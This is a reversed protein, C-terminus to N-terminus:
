SNLRVEWNRTKGLKFYDVFMTTEMAMQLEDAQLQSATFSVSPLSISIIPRHFGMVPDSLVLEAGEVDAAVSYVNQRTTPESDPVDEILKPGVFSSLADLALKMYEMSFYASFKTNTTRSPLFFPKCVLPAKCQYPDVQINGAEIGNMNEKDLHERSLPVRVNLKTYNTSENLDYQISFSLDDILTQAGSNKLCGSVQRRGRSTAPDTYERLAVIGLDKAVIDQSSYTLGHSKYRYHIGDAELMICVGSHCGSNAPIIIHPRTLWLRFDIDLGVDETAAAVDGYVKQVIEEALFCPNGYPADKFYLGFYDLLIWISSLNELTGELFDAGLNIMCHNDPTMYVTVQFPLSLGEVLTHLGCNLGWGLNVFSSVGTVNKVSAHQEFSTTASGDLIRMGTAGIGISMVNSKDSVIDCIVHELSVSVADSKLLSITPPDKDFYGPQDFSCDLRFNKICLALEFEKETCEDTLRKIFEDSGYEPWDLPPDSYKSTEEIIKSDFPFLVPLQQMNAYWISILLYLQSMRMDLFSNGMMEILLRPTPVLDAKIVLNLPEHTVEQWARARTEVTLPNTSNMQARYVPKSDECRGTCSVFRNWTPLKVSDPSHQKGNLATFLRAGHLNIAIRLLQSATPVTQEIQDGVCDFFVESASSRTSEINCADCKSQSIYGGEFSYSKITWSDKVYVPSISLEDVEIGVLDISASDRPLIITSNTCKVTVQMSPAPSTENSEKSPQIAELLLGLGYQPSSVYQIMENVFQRLVTVRVGGLSILVDNADSSNGTERKIRLTSACHEDNGDCDKHTTIVNPYSDALSPSVCQLIVDNASMAEGEPSRDCFIGAVCLRVFPISDDIFVMSASSLTGNVVLDAHPKAKPTASTNCSKGNTLAADSISRCTSLAASYALPDFTTDANEIEFYIEQRDAHSSLSAVFAVGDEAEAIQLFNIRSGDHVKLCKAQIQVMSKCYYSSLSVSVAEAQIFLGRDPLTSLATLASIAMDSAQSVIHDVKDPLLKTQSAITSKLESQFNFLANEMCRRTDKRSLGLNICQDEYLKSICEMADQNPYQADLCSVLSLYNITIQRLHEESSEKSDHNNADSFIHVTITDISLQCEELAYEAIAPLSPKACETNDPIKDNLRTSLQRILQLITRARIESVMLHVPSLEVVPQCGTFFGHVRVKM